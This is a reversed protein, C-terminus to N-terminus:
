VQIKKSFVNNIERVTDVIDEAISGGVEATNKIHPKEEPLINLLRDVAAQMSPNNRYAMIVKMERDTLVTEDGAILYDLSVGFYDALKRLTSLRVGDCGKKYFGDITTYPIGSEKALVNKNINRSKM